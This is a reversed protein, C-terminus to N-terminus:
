SLLIASLSHYGGVEGGRHQEAGELHCPGGWQWHLTLLECHRESWDEGEEALSTPGNGVRARCGTM